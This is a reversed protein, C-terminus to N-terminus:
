MSRPPTEARGRPTAANATRRKVSFGASGSARFYTAESFIEPVCSHEEPARRSEEFDQLPKKRGSMRREYLQAFGDPRLTVGRRQRRM